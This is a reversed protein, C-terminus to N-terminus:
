IGIRRARLRWLAASEESVVIAKAPCVTREAMAGGTELRALLIALLTTKGTKWQSTLLTINGRALFGHWLWDVRPEDGAADDVLSQPEWAEIAELDAAASSDPYPAM